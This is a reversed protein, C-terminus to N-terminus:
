SLSKLMRVSQSCLTFEQSRKLLPNLEETQIRFFGFREFWTDATETFLYIRDLPINKAYDIMHDVLKHGIKNGQYSSKVALSRLLGINEYIELGVVGVVQGRVKMFYFNEIHDNIGIVPLNFEELLEYIQELDKVNAKLVSQNTNKIQM